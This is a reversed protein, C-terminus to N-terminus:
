CCWLLLCLLLWLWSTLPINRSWPNITFHYPALLCTSSGEKMASSSKKMYSNTTSESADSDSGSGHIYTHAHALEFTNGERRTGGQTDRHTETHRQTDRHTETHRQSPSHESQTALLLPYWRSLLLAKITGCLMLAVRSCLRICLSFCVLRGRSCFSFFMCTFARKNRDQTFACPFAVAFCFFRAASVLVSM